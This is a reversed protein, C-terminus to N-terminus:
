CHIPQPALEPSRDSVLQWNVFCDKTDQPVEFKIVAASDAFLTLVPAWAQAVKEGRWLTERSLRNAVAKAHAPNLVRLMKPFYEQRIFGKLVVM